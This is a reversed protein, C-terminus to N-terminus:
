SPTPTQSTPKKKVLYVHEGELVVEGKQNRIVARFKVVGNNKKAILESVELEPYITDGLFVPKIFRSSQSLFAEMSDEVYNSLSSGGLATMAALLLGHAVRRGFMHRKCYEDDYHIPHADGTLGSFFVFHGDHITKSPIKFAQGIEFDEFFKQNAM